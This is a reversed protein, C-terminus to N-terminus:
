CLVKLWRLSFKNFQILQFHNLAILLDARLVRHRVLKANIGVHVVEGPSIPLLPRWRAYRALVFAEHRRVM